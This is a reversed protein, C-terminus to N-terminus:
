FSLFFSEVRYLATIPNVFTKWSDKCTKEEGGARDGASEFQQKKM